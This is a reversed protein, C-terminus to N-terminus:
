PQRSIIKNISTGRLHLTSEDDAQVSLKGVRMGNDNLRSNKMAVNLEKIDASSNAEINSNSGTINLVKWYGHMNYKGNLNIGAENLEIDLSRALSSDSLGTINFDTNQVILKQVPTLFLTVDQYSRSNRGDGANNYLTDGKVVLTDGKLYYFVRNTGSQEVKITATDATFINCRQLGSVKVYRFAPLSATKYNGQDENTKRVVYNGSKYKVLLTIVSASIVLPISLFVGLLIKNSTKM